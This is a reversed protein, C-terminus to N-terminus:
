FGIEKPNLINQVWVKKSGFSYQVQYKRPGRIKAKNPKSQNPWIPKTQSPKDQGIPKSPRNPKNPKAHTRKKGRRTMMQQAM